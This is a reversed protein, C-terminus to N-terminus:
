KKLVGLAWIGTIQNFPDRRNAEFSPQFVSNLVAERAANVVKIDYLSQIEKFGAQVHEQIQSENMAMASEAAELFSDADDVKYTVVGPHRWEAMDPAVCIAGAHISEIWSINSKCDNFFDNKLPFLWVKPALQYINRWYLLPDVANIGVVKDLPMQSVVSFPPSGMFHVPKSLKPFASEVSLLDGEHTNTGRWTFIEKRAPMHAANVTRFPFLDSRYANPLIFVNDNIVKFANLLASSSVSVIDSCALMTAIVNQVDARHYSDKHPNWNPLQFLWDDYDTWVPINLLRAMQLLLLDQPRCPRHMFIIDFESLRDWKIQTGDPPLYVQVDGESHKALYNLPGMCRWFSNGDASFPTNVFIKKM